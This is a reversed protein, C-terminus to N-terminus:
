FYFWGFSLGLITGVILGVAVGVFWALIILGWSLEMVPPEVRAPVVPPVVEPGEERGYSAM